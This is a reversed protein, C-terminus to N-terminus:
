FPVTRGASILATNIAKLTAKQNEKNFYSKLKMLSVRPGETWVAGKNDKILPSTACFVVPVAGLAPTKSILPFIFALAITLLSSQTKNQIGTNVAGPDCSAVLIHSLQPQLLFSDQLAQGWLSILVKSEAYTSLSTTTDKVGGVDLLRKSIASVSSQHVMGSSLIVIRATPSKSLSPLLGYTLHACGIV